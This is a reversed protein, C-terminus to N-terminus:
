STKIKISDIVKYGFYENIKSTILNQTFSLMAAAPSNTATILLIKKNDQTIIKNPSTFKSIELGIISEWEFVIKVRELGFQDSFSNALYKVIGSIPRLTSIKYRRQM